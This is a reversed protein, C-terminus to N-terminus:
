FIPPSDGDAKEIIENKAITGISSEMYKSITNSHPCYQLLRALGARCNRWSVLWVPLWTSMYILEFIIYIANRQSIEYIVFTNIVGSMNLHENGCTGVVEGIDVFLTLKIVVLGM